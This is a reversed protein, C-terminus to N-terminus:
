NLKAIRAKAEAVIGDDSPSYGDAVSQYTARAQFTDGQRLYIDGLMLFAKALWYSAPERESYAFIEESTRKLDGTAYIEEILRYAAEAGQKSRVEVALEEYLDHAEHKRGSASMVCALAYKAERGAVVGADAAAAVDAAMAEIQAPDGGAVTARVYGTMADEREASSPAVDYLKRYAAAAEGYRRDAHTMSALRGLTEVAYPHNGEAALESLAGIEDNRNGARRHCEALYYLADVRYYGKPYSKVYSRLSRAATEDSNKLYLAQAAAFSLSDRQVATLDSEMGSRKAYDFYSDVDGESIYIERIGQMAGKAEASRPAAAVALDYYHLSRERNGLNRYALGLDSLAQQRRPSSPYKKIFTELERAGESYRSEAIYSRGLEYAAEDLWDGRGISAIQKLGERMEATRGLLGLTVARKYRAYHGAETGLAISNDYQKVAEQFSRAAFRVDGMRNFADARFIDEATYLRIFDAFQEAAAGMAGREFNCYGLNYRALAYERETEPARRLYNDFRTAATTFDGEAYAIEGLYFITLSSYKPSVSITSAEHLYRKAGARDGGKLAELGRFYAIKQLAMYTDADLEPLSKIARYAADYNRSNYYAAVLLTRAETSRESHPYTSIYRTLLNIAGNFHGGGLEYQLKAYNFLADEAIASDYREDAAMAFAQMAGQKDGERLACDALHYSANQTLADAAGCAERLHGAAEAYRVTRYLAFGLLYHSDRDLVGGDAEYRRMYEITRNYDELRFWSEAVVRELETRREPTTEAILRDGNEVVYRHNGERFELQLIYYPAVARYDNTQALEEFGQRARGYNGEVYDIYSRYYLAHDGYDSRRGIHSLHRYSDAYNGETFELYGLRLDYQERRSASLTERDVNEFYSRARAMDGAACYYSALSFRVDNGYVSEPYRSEFARLAMEADEDGLEVACAALYFELEMRASRDHPLLEGRAKMLEVRADAWRNFAFLERGRELAEFRNNGDARVTAVATVALAASLLIIHIRKM